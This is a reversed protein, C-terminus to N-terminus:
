LLWANGAGNSQPHEVDRAAVWAYPPAIRQTLCSHATCTPRSSTAAGRMGCSMLEMVIYLKSEKPPVFAAHFAVINEHQCGKLHVIERLIDDLAMPVKELDIVKIACDKKTNRWQARRVVGM